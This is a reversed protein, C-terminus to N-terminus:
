KKKKRKPATTPYKKHGSIKDGCWPCHAIQVGSSRALTGESTVPMMYFLSHVNDGEGDAFNSVFVFKEDVAAAFRGCSCEPKKDWEINKGIHDSPIDMDIKRAMELSGTFITDLRRKVKKSTVEVKPKQRRLRSRRQELRGRRGSM